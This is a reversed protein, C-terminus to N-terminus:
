KKKIKLVTGPKADRASKLGNIKLIEKWSVKYKRGITSMYEGPKVTHTVWEGSKAAPPAPDKKKVPKKVPAVVKKGNDVKGDGKKKGGIGLGTAIVIGVILFLAVLFIFVVKSSSGGEEPASGYGTDQPVSGYDSAPTSSTYFDDQRDDMEMTPFSSSSSSSSSTSSTKRTSSKKAAAKRTTKKAAAKKKAKAAPAKKTVKKKAAAKKTTKKTTKKAM